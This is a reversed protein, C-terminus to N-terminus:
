VRTSGGGGEPGPDPERGTAHPSSSGPSAPKREQGTAPLPEAPPTLAAELAKRVDGRSIMPLDDDVEDLGLSAFAREVMEDTITLGEAPQWDPYTTM